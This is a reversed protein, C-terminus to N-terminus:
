HCNIVIKHCRTCTEFDNRQDRVNLRRPIVTNRRRSEYCNMPSFYKTCQSNQSKRMSVSLSENVQKSGFAQVRFAGETSKCSYRSKQYHKVLIAQDINRRYEDYLNKDVFLEFKIKQLFEMELMKMEKKSVGGVKGFFGNRHHHDDYFKAAVLVSTLIMKHVNDSTLMFKYNKSVLRNIYIFSLIM